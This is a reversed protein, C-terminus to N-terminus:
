SKPAVREAIWGVMLVVGYWFLFTIRVALVFDIAGGGNDGYHTSAINSIEVLIALVGIGIAWGPVEHSLGL